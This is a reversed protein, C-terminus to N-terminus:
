NWGPLQGPGRSTFRQGPVGTGTRTWLLEGRAAVVGAHRGLMDLAREMLRVFREPYRWTSGDQIKGFLTGYLASTLADRWLIQSNKLADIAASVQDPPLYKVAVVSAALKERRAKEAHTLRERPPRPCTQAILLGRWVRVYFAGYTEAKKASAYPRGLIAM